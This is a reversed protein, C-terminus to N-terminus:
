DFPFNLVGHYHPEDRTYTLSASPNAYERAATLTARALLSDSRALAVHAGRSLAVDIAGARTLPTLAAAGSRDAGSVQAGVSVATLGVGILTTLVTRWACRSERGASRTM